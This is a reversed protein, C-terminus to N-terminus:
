IKIYNIFTNITGSSNYRLMLDSTYITLKTNCYIHITYISRFELFNSCLQCEGDVSLHDSLLELIEEKTSFSFDNVQIDICSGRIFLKYKLSGIICIESNPLYKKLREQFLTIYEEINNFEYFSYVTYDIAEQIKKM